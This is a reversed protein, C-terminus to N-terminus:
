GKSNNRGGSLKLEASLATKWVDVSLPLFLFAAM